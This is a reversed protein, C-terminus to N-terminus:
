ANGKANRCLSKNEVVAAIQMVKDPKQGGFYIWEGEEAAVYSMSDTCLTDGRWDENRNRVGLYYQANGCFPTPFVPSLRTM